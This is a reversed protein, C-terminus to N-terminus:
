CMIKNFISYSGVVEDTDHKFSTLLKDKTYMGNMFCGCGICREVNIIRCVTQLIHYFVALGLHQQCSM